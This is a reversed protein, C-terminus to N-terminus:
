RGESWLEDLQPGMGKTSELAAEIRERPVLPGTNDILIGLDRAKDRVQQRRISAPDTDAPVADNLIQNALANVSVGERKARKALRKHLDDPVRILMQRM